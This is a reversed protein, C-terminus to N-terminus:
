KSGVLTCSPRSHPRCVAAQPRRRPQKSRRGPRRAPPQAPPNYQWPLLPKHRRRSRCHCCGPVEGGPGAHHHTPAQCQHQQRQAGAGALPLLVQGRRLQRRQVGPATGQRDGLRRPAGDGGIQQGGIIGHAGEHLAIGPADVIRALAQHGQVLGDLPGTGKADAVVGIGVATGAVHEGPATGIAQGIGVQEHGQGPLRTQVGAVLPQFHAGLPAPDPVPHQHAQM